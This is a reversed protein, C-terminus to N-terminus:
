PRAMCWRLDALDIDSVVCTPHKVQDVARQDPPAPDAVQNIGGDVMVDVKVVVDVNIAESAVIERSIFLRARPMSTTSVARLVARVVTRCRTRAGAPLRVGVASMEAARSNILQYQRWKENVDM